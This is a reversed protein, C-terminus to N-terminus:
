ETKLDIAYLNDIIGDALGIVPVHIYEAKVIGAIILFIGAAPVIVDARDTKLNFEEMRQELTLVKLKDYLEQLSTIPLRSQKKDKKDALRYLKNINGGSGIINVGQFDATLRTLDSKMQEWSGERVSNSLMRVTGINYSLSQVLEGNILFNIETSGGGVDVYIYNGARDELCEIHTATLPLKQPTVCFVQEVPVIRTGLRCFHIFREIIKIHNGFTPLLRHCSSNRKFFFLVYCDIYQNVSSGCLFIEFEEKSEKYYIQSNTNINPITRNIIIVAPIHLTFM